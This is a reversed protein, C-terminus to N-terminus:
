QSLSLLFPNIAPRVRSGVAEASGAERGERAQEAM